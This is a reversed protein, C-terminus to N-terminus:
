MYVELIKANVGYEKMVRVFEERHEVPVIISSKGAKRGNLKEIMGEYRKKNSNFGYVKNLFAGRNKEIKDWFILAHKKGSAGSSVYNGYLLIGTSEISKKLKKWDEIRGVTLNIVNDVGKNKFILAERSNYFERRVRDLEKEFLKSKKLADVFIDVDSEKTNEGRAVSGFLIIQKINDITKINNILYSVFYSAYSLINEPM